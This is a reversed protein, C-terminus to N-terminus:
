LTSPVSHRLEYAWRVHMCTCVCVRWWGCMFMCICLWTCTGASSPVSPESTVPPPAAPLGFPSLISPTPLPRSHTVTDTTVTTVSSPRALTAAAATSDGETAREERVITRVLSIFDELGLDALRLEDTSPPISDGTTPADNGASVPPPLLPANSAGRRTSYPRSCRSSSPHRGGCAGRRPMNWALPPLDVCADSIPRYAVFPASPRLSQHLYLNTM